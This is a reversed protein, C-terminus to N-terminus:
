KESVTREDVIDVGRGGNMYEVRSLGEQLRGDGSSEFEEEGSLGLLLIEAGGGKEGEGM